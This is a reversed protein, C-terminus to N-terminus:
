KHTGESDKECESQSFSTLLRRAEALERELVQDPAVQGGESAWREAALLDEVRSTLDREDM